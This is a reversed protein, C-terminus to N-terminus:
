SLYFRYIKQSKFNKRNFQIEKSTFAYFQSSQKIYDKHGKLYYFSEFSM